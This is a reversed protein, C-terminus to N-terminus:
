RKARPRCRRSATPTEPHAPPEAAPPPEAPFLLRGCRECTEIGTPRRGGTMAPRRVFCGLCIGGRVPVVARPHRRRVQAYRELLGADISRSLRDREACLHGLSGLEFGQAQEAHRIRGEELDRLLLDLDQLAVLKQVALNMSLKEGLAPHELTLPGSETAPKM